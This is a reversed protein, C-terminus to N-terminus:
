LKQTDTISTRLLGARFSDDVAYQDQQAEYALLNTAVFLLELERDNLGEFTTPNFAVKREQILINKRVADVDPFASFLGRLQRVYSRYVGQELGGVDLWDLM